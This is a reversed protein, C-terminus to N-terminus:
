EIKSCPQIRAAAHKHLQQDITNYDTGHSIQFALARPDNFSRIDHKIGNGAKSKQM